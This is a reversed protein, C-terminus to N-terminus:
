FSNNTYCLKKQIYVWKGTKLNMYGRFKKSWIGAAKYGDPNRYGNTM